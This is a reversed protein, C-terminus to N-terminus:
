QPAQSIEERQQWTFHSVRKSILWASGRRVYEDNYYVGSTNKIRRGNEVGILVVLSSAPRSDRGTTTRGDFAFGFKSAIVVKGKFPKLAEGVIEESTFPGYVEATDFLTVGREVAARILAVMDQKPPAPNYFGAVMSMCGLGLSSVELSGLKRRDTLAAKSATGKDGNTAASQMASLPLSSVALGAGALATRGIFERRNIGEHPSTREHNGM